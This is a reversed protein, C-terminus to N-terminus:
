ASHRQVKKLTTCVYCQLTYIYVYTCTYDCFASEKCTNTISVLERSTRKQCVLQHVQIYLMCRCRYM